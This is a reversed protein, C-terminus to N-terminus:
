LVVLKSKKKKLDYEPGCYYNNFIFIDFILLFNLM